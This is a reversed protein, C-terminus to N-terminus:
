VNGASLLAAAQRGTNVNETAPSLIPAAAHYFHKGTQKQWERSLAKESSKSHSHAPSRAWSLATPNPHFETRNVFTRGIIWGNLLCLSLFHGRRVKQMALLLFHNIALSPHFLFSTMCHCPCSL